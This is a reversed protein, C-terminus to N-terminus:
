SATIPDSFARETVRLGEVESLVPEAFPRAGGTKTTELVAASGSEEDTWPLSPRFPQPAGVGYSDFAPKSAFGDLALPRSRPCGGDM